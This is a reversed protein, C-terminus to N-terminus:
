EEEIPHTEIEKALENTLCDAREDQGGAFSYVKFAFQFAKWLMKVSSTDTKSKNDNTEAKEEKREKLALEIFGSSLDVMFEKIKTFITFDFDINQSQFLKSEKDKTRELGELEAKVKIFYKEVKDLNESLPPEIKWNRIESVIGNLKTSLAAAARLTELKHMPFGELKSLIELLSEVRNHFRLLEDMDNTKFVSLDRQLKKIENGHKEMDEEINQFYSSRKTMEALADAMSTGGGGKVSGGNGSNGNIVNKNVPSSRKGPLCSGEVKGRLNRYMNGMHSSRKLKTKNRSCVVNRMGGGPPPSPQRKKGKVPPPPPPASGPVLPPQPAATSPRPPPPPASSPASVEKAVINNNNSNNNNDKAEIKSEEEEMSAPKLSHNLNNATFHPMVHVVLRKLDMPSLEEVAQVRLNLLQHCTYSRLMAGLLDAFRPSDPLVSNPTRPSLSSPSRSSNYESNCDVSRKSHPKLKFSASHKHKREVDMLEFRDKAAKNICDLMELVLEVLKDLPSSEIHPKKFKDKMSKDEVWSDAMCELVHYLCILGQHTNKEKMKLIPYGPMLDPYMRKLEDITETVVEHISLSSSIPPIDFIDRFIFIKKRLRMFLFFTGGDGNSDSNGRKKKREERQDKRIPSKFIMVLLKSDTKQM